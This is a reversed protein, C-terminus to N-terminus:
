TEVTVLVPFVSLIFVKRKVAEGGGGGRVLGLLHCLLFNWTKPWLGPREPGPVQKGWLTQSCRGVGERM